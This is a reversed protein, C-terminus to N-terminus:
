TGLSSSPHLLRRFAEPLQFYAYIRLNGFLDVKQVAQQIWSYALSLRAFQFMKTATWGMVFPPEYLMTPIDFPSAQSSAIQLLTM